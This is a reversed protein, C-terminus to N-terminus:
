RAPKDNVGRIRPMPGLYLSKDGGESDIREQMLTRVREAFDSSARLDEETVGTAPPPTQPSLVHLTARIPPKAGRRLPRGARLVTVIPIVPVGLQMAFLFAGRRLPMIRQNRLFCEGESYFHIFGKARLAEAVTAKLEGQRERAKPLAMGGLLRILTGLFPTLVTEEILTFYTTRPILSLGMLLSDLPICHNSVLIAPRSRPYGRLIEKGRCRRRYLLFAPLACLVWVLRSLLFSVALFPASRNLLPAGKKYAM